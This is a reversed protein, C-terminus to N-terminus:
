LRYERTEEKIIRLDKAEQESLDWRKRRANLLSAIYFPSYHIGRSKLTEELGFSYFINNIEQIFQQGSNNIIQIGNNIVSVLDIM